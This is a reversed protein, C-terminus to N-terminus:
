FWGNFWGDERGTWADWTSFISVIWGLGFLWCCIATGFHAYTKQPVASWGTAYWQGLGPILCSLLGPIWGTEKIQKEPQKTEKPVTVTKTDKSVDKKVPEKVTVAKTDSTTKTEPTAKTDPAKTEAPTATVPVTDGAFCPTLGGVVIQLSFVVLMTMAVAQLITRLKM